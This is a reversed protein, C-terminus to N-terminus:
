SLDARLIAHDWSWLGVPQYNSLAPTFFEFYEDSYLPLNIVLENYRAQYQFWKDAWADNDGPETMQMDLAIARLEADDIRETNYLGLYDPDISSYYWVPNTDAFGTALNFMHYVAMGEGTRYLHDLLLGFDMATQNIQMGAKAANAPLMSSLLESVPNDVTSAWEIVLPMLEGDVEKHRLGESGTVYDSGDANFVWGGAELVEEAADVSVAYPNLETELRDRNAEYEWQSRGYYAHPLTGYGGTWINAFEVRDLSYAIAQRVEAFQTPGFECAFELKGYGARPYSSYAANGAESIDIGQNIEDGGSIGPLLHVTGADLEDMQTAAVVSKLVLKEISATAGDEARGLFEPNAELTCILSASDFSVFQYPGCTVQPNYRYGTDPNLIPDRILDATFNDTFTAGEGDDTIDVGPAIVFMPSPGVAFLINEYFYPFESAPVTISFEFEGLLRLGAFTKTAGTHFEEYGVVKNGSTNSAGEMEGFEPSGGLMVAFLYDKATIIEGTNWKLYDHIEFKYTKDGNDEDIIELNKVAVDNLEYTQGSTMEFTGYGGLLSKVRANQAGNTWGTMFDGNVDTTSGIIFGNDFATLDVGSGQSEDGSSGGDASGSSGENAGTNVPGADSSCAALTLAMTASLLMAMLKRTKM